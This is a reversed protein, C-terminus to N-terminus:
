AAAARRRSRLVTGLGAFGVLMMAWASPEPVGGSPANLDVVVNNVIYDGANATIGDQLIFPAFGPKFGFTQSFDVTASQKVGVAGASVQLLLTYSHAVNTQLLFPRSVLMLSLNDSNPNGVIDFFGIVASNDHTGFRDTSLSRDFNEFAGGDLSFNADVATGASVVNPNEGLATNAGVFTRSLLGDLPILFQVTTDNGSVSGFTVSGTFTASASAQGGGPAHAEAHVQGPTAASSASRGDACAVSASTPANVRDGGLVGPCGFSNPSTSASYIDAAAPLAAATTILAALLGISKLSM